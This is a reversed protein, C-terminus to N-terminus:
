LNQFFAQSKLCCSFNFPARDLTRFPFFGHITYCKFSNFLLLLFQFKVKFKVKFFTQIDSETLRLQSDFIDNFEQPFALYLQSNQICRLKEKGYDGGLYVWKTLVCDTGGFVEQQNLLESQMDLM